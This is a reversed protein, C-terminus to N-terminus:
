GVLDEVWDFTWCLGVLDRAYGVLGFRKGLLAGGLHAVWGFRRCLLM